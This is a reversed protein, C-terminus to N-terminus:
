AKKYRMLRHTVSAQFSLHLTIPSDHADRVRVNEREKLRVDGINVFKFVCPHVHRVASWYLQKQFACIVLLLILVVGRRSHIHTLSSYAVM